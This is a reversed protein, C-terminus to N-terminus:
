STLDCAQELQGPSVAFGRLTGLVRHQLDCCQRCRGPRPRPQEQPPHAPTSPTHHHQPDKPTPEAAVSGHNHSPEDEAHGNGNTDLTAHTTAQPDAPGAPSVIPNAPHTPCLTTNPWERQLSLRRRTLRTAPQPTRTPPTPARPTSPKHSHQPKPTPARPNTPQALRAKDSCLSRSRRDTTPEDRHRCPKM